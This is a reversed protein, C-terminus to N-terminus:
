NRQHGFNFMDSPCTGSFLCQCGLRFQCCSSIVKGRLLDITPSHPHHSFGRYSMCLCCYSGTKVTLLLNNDKGSTELLVSPLLQVKMSPTHWVNGGYELAM